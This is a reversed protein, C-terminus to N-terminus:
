PLARLFAAVVKASNESALSLFTNMENAHEGGGALDSLSRFAIFPVGNVHAVQATAASEMDVVKAQFTSFIFDRFAANDIFATGSVGSGGVVVKPKVSLCTDKDVCHRLVTKGSVSRAVDLLRADVPFWFRKEPEQGIGKGIETYTPFVMGFNPFPTPIFPPPAYKGDSERAYVAELYSAWRDAIVVDGLSLSPDVGGAIGSFVIAKLAFHDIAMQTTMAANVMSVNSLVLVVDKGSLTGTIFSQGSITHVQQGTTAALLTQWEPAFASMVAIRPTTDGDEAAAAPSPGAALGLCLSVALIAAFATPKM